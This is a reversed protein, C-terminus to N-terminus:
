GPLRGTRTRLRRSAREQLVMDASKYAERQTDFVRSVCKAGKRRTAWGDNHPVIHIDKKPM